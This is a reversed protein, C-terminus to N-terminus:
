LKKFSNENTPFALPNPNKSGTYNYKEDGGRSLSVVRIKTNVTDAVDDLEEQFWITQIGSKPM